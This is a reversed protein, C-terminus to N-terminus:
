IKYKSEPDVLFPVEDLVFHGNPHNQVFYEVLAYIDIKKRDSGKNQAEYYERLDQASKVIVDGSTFDYLKTYIDYIHEYDDVKGWADVGVLSIFFVPDAKLKLGKNQADEEKEATKIAREKCILSKGSFLNCLILLILNFM